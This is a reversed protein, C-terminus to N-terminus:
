ITTYKTEGEKKIKIIVKYNEVEVRTRTKNGTDERIKKAKEEAEKIEERLCGPFENSVSVGKVKKGKLAGFVLAKDRSDQLKLQIITPAKKSEGKFRRSMWPGIKGEVGLETLFNQVVEATQEPTEKDKEAKPHYKLNRLILNGRVDKMEGVVIRKEIKDIRKEHDGLTETHEDISKGNNDVVTKIANCENTTAAVLLVFGKALESISTIEGKEVKDKFDDYEEPKQPSEVRGRKKSTM